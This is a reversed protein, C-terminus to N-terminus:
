EYEVEKSHNNLRFDALDSEKLVSDLEKYKITISNKHTKRDEEFLRFTLSLSPKWEWGHGANSYKAGVLMVPCRLGEYIKKTRTISYMLKLMNSQEQTLWESM